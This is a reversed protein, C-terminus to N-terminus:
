GPGGEPLLPGQEQGSFGSSGSDFWVLVHPNGLATVWREASRILRGCCCLPSGQTGRLWPQLWTPGAPLPTRLALVDAPIDGESIPLPNLSQSWTQEFGGVARGLSLPVQFTLTLQRSWLIRHSSEWGASLAEPFRFRSLKFM